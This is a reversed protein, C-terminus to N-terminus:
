RFLEMKRVVMYVLGLVIVWIMVIAIRDRWDMKDNMETLPREKFSKYM